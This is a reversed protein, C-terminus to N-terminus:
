WFGIVGLYILIQAALYSFWIIRGTKQPRKDVFLETALVSDSLVFFAAGLPILSRDPWLRLTTAGMVFIALIYATVPAKMDGLHPWLFIAFGLSYLGLLASILVPWGGNGLAYFLAIYAIHALLFSGLGILFFREGNRSLALDGLASLGLGAILLAPAHAAIAGLTLLSIPATKYLSRSFSPDRLAHTLGYLIGITGAAWVALEALDPM